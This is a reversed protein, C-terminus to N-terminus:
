YMYVDETLEVALALNNRDYEPVSRLFHYNWTKPIESLFGIALFTHVTHVHTQYDLWTEGFCRKRLLYRTIIECTIIDNSAIPSDQEKWVDKREFVRPLYTASWSFKYNFIASRYLHIYFSIGFLLSLYEGPGTQHSMFTVLIGWPMNPTVYLHCTNGLAHKTRCLLSLYEGPYTQHSM